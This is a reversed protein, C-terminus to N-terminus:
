GYLVKKPCCETMIKDYILENFLRNQGKEIKILIIQAIFLLERLGESKKSKKHIEKILKQWEKPLNM